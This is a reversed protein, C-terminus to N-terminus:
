AGGYPAGSAQHQQAVTAARRERMGAVRAQQMQMAEPKGTGVHSFGNNVVAAQATSKMAGGAYRGVRNSMSGLAMAAPKAAAGGAGGLVAGGAMSGLLSGQRQGTNPDKPKMMHRLAGSGMGMAAGGLVRTQLPATVAKQMMKGVMPRAMSLASGLLGATKEEQAMERGWGEVVEVSATKGKIRALEKMVRDATSIGINKGSLAAPVSSAIPHDGSIQAYDKATRTTLGWTKHGFGPKAGEEKMKKDNAEHRDHLASTSREFMSPKGGFRKSALISALALTGAGIGAGIRRPKTDLQAKELGKKLLEKIDLAVKEKGSLASYLDFDDM